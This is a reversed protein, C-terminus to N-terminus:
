VEKDENEKRLYETFFVTDEIKDFIKDYIVESKNTKKIIIVNYRIKEM